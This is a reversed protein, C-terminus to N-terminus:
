QLKELKSHHIGYAFYIVLGLSVWILFVEWTIAPLESLLWISFAIGILPILPV